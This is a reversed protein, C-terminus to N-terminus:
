HHVSFILGASSPGNGGLEMASSILIMGLICGKVSSFEAGCYIYICIFLSLKMERKDIGVLDALQSSFEGSCQKLFIKKRCKKSHKGPTNGWSFFFCVVPPKFLFKPKGPKLASIGQHFHKASHKQKVQGVLAVIVLIWHGVIDVLITAGNTYCWVDWRTSPFRFKIVTSEGTVDWPIRNLCVTAVEKEQM